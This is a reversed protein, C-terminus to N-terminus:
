SINFQWQMKMVDGLVYESTFTPCLLLLRKLLRKLRSLLVADVKILHNSPNGGKKQQLRNAQLLGTQSTTENTFYKQICHWKVESHYSWFDWNSTHNAHQTM